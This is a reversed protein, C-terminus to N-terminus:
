RKIKNNIYEIIISRENSELGMAFAILGVWIVSCPVMIFFRMISDDFFYTFSYPIIFALLFVVIIKVLIDTIFTKWKYTTLRSLTKLRVIVTVVRTLIAIPYYVWVPAGLRYMLWVLPFIGVGVFTAEITYRKINGQAQILTYLPQTFLMTLSNFLIFRLFLAAMEPAEGLWLTLLTDAEIFAPVFFILMLMFTFRSGRNVLRYCQEYDKAAYMKTIQPNFAVTFNSVFQEICSNITNAVGQAANYVVGFFINILMSVGQTNFIFATNGFMNWGSFVTLEKLLGKDFVKISYHSEEFNRGCYWGYFLRMGIGVAVQLIALLILRDGDFAMIAFCIALKLVAEAISTYAYISMREHAVIVANYPTSILGVVLTVIACQLVWNAAYMRGDPIQAQSNLFWIGVTELALVVIASMIIQTTVATSFTLKLKDKDGKGLGYTLYRQIAASMTGTILASMAVIGGVVSNIGYNEVGLAQLMVRGTYLGVIMTIFTRFYLAITNKAIRKNNSQNDSM